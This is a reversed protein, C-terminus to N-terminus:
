RETDLGIELDELLVEVTATRALDLAVFAPTEYRTFTCGVM